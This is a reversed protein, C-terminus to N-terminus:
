GINGIPYKANVLYENGAAIGGGSGALINFNGSPGIEGNFSTLVGGNNRQIWIPWQATPRFAAPVTIIAAGAGAAAKFAGLLWVNDEADKRYQFTGWNATGNFTTSGSWNANFNGVGAVGPVQWVDPTLGDTSKINAGTIYDDAPVNNDGVIVHPNAVIGFGPSGSIVKVFAPTPRDNTTASRIFLEGASVVGSPVTTTNFSAANLTDPLFGGSAGLPGFRLIGESNQTFIHNTEDYTCVGALYDNGFDDTGATSSISAILNGSAPTGSYYLALGSVVTGGRIVVNNFEASGDANITWGSVGTVFNDSHVGPIILSGQTDFALPNQTPEM